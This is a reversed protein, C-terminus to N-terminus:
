PEVTSRELALEEEWQVVTKGNLVGWANVGEAEVM